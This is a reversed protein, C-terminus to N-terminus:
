IDEKSDYGALIRLMDFAGGMAGGFTEYEDVTRDVELEMEKNWHTAIFPKEKHKVEEVTIKHFPNEISRHVITGM